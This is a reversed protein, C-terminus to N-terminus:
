TPGDALLFSPGASPPGAGPAAKQRGGTGSSAARRQERLGAWYQASIGGSQRIGHSPLAM